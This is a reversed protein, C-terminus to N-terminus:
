VNPTAAEIGFGNDGLKVAVMSVGFQGVKFLRKPCYKSVEGVSNNVAVASFFYYFAEASFFELAM